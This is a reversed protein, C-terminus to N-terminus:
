IGNLFHWVRIKLVTTIENDPEWCLLLLLWHSLLFHLTWCTVSYLYYERVKCVTVLLLLLGDWSFVVQEPNKFLWSSVTAWLRTSKRTWKCAVNWWISPHWQPTLSAALYSVESDVFHMISPAELNVPHEPNWNPLPSWVTRTPIPAWWKWLLIWSWNHVIQRQRYSLFFIPLNFIASFIQTCCHKLHSKGNSWSNGPFDALFDQFHQCFLTASSHCFWIFEHSNSVVQNSIESKKDKKCHLTSFFIMLPSKTM